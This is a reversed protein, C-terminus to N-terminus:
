FICNEYLDRFLLDFSFDNVDVYENCYGYCQHVEYREHHPYGAKLGVGLTAYRKGKRTISFVLYQRRSVATDYSAVCHHMVDGEYFLEYPSILLTAEYDGCLFKYPKLHKYPDESYNRSNILRYLKNHLRNWSNMSQYLKVPHQLEQAMRLTDEIINATATYQILHVANKCSPEFFMISKLVQPDIDRYSGALVTTPIDSFVHPPMQENAKSALLMNRSRSNNAMRKWASKGAIQRIEHPDKGYWMILPLLHDLGDKHAQYVLEEFEFFRNVLHESVVASNKTRVFIAFKAWDPVEWTNTMVANFVRKFASPTIGYTRTFWKYRDITHRMHYEFYGLEDIDLNYPDNPVNMFCCVGYLHDLRIFRRWTFQAFRITKGDVIFDNKFM